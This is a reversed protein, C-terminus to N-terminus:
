EKLLVEIVAAFAPRTVFVGFSVGLITTIAFGKLLGAGASILPVMAVVTTFYAAMIIFFARKLKEKWNATKADKGKTTEDIIVIQDDVGTGVAVLIAAISVLDLNWGILVALGLILLIESVMTFLIPIAIILRGYRIFIIAAVALISLACVVLINKIFEKGLYPSITDIKVINLKVPLSGTILITQLRKMNKASSLIADQKNGGIGPGSIAIDTEAKGKLSAGIRLTDVLENDLYLDINKALYEEGDENIIDLGGTLKAQRQAAEPSLTIAFSFSCQYMGNSIPGCPRRPDVPFSCDPTRCVSKIDEGGVFVTQNDIKAEFKGQSGILENVEEENAGAIEVVIYTNGSVFDGATRVVIDSLGYVNLRQKLNDIIIDTDDKSVEEEPQLLVRTGGELDLGKKINTKPADYVKIGIDEIGITNNDADVQPKIIVKYVKKEKLYSYIRKEGSWKFNTKTEVTAFGGDKLEGEKFTAIMADYDDVNNIARGNIKVIIERAMPKDAPLPSRMGSEYAASDKIVSRIAVGENTFNPHISIIAFLLLVILFIVRGKKLLELAKKM